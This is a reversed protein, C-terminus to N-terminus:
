ISCVVCQIVLLTSSNLSYACAHMYLCARGVVESSCIFFVRLVRFYHLDLCMKEYSFFVSKGCVSRTRDRGEFPSEKAACLDFSM